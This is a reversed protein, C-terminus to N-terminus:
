FEVNSLAPMERDQALQSEVPVIGRLHRYRENIFGVFNAIGEDALSSVRYLLGVLHFPKDCEEIAIFKVKARLNGEITDLLLAVYRPNVATHSVAGLEDHFAQRFSLGYLDTMAKVTFYMSSSDRYSILPYEALEKFSVSKRDALPHAPNVAVVLNQALVPINGLGKAPSKSWGCFALDIEHKQILRICDFTASVELIDFFTDHSSAHEYDILLSPLFAQQVSAVTGIKIYSPKGGPSSSLSLAQDIEDLAKNIHTCFQEGFSTLVIGQGTRIFLDAGLEQELGKISKSLAPQTIYLKEAAKGFHGIDALVTLYRM